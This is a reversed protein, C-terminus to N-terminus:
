DASELEKLMATMEHVDDVLGVITELLDDILSGRMDLDYELSNVREDRTALDKELAETLNKLEEVKDSLDGIEEDKCEINHHLDDMQYEKADCENCGSEFDDLDSRMEDVVLMLAKELDTEPEAIRLVEKATMHLFNM